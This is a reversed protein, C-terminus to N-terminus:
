KDKKTTTDPCFRCWPNSPSGIKQPDTNGSNKQITSIEKPTSDPTTQKDSTKETALVPTTNVQNNTPVPLRAIFLEPKGGLGAYKKVLQKSDPKQQLGRELVKMANNKDKYQLHADALGIYAPVYNKNRQIAAEFNTLAEGIRNEGYKSGRLINNGLNTYAEPYLPCDPATTKWEDVVSKFSQEAKQLYHKADNPNNWAANTRVVYKLGDCYHHVSPCNPITNRLPHNGPQPDGHFRGYIATCYPPMMTLEARSVLFPLAAQADLWWTPILIFLLATKIGAAKNTLKSHFFEGPKNRKFM